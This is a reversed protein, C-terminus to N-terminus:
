NEVPLFMGGLHAYVGIHVNRDGPTLVLRRKPFNSSSLCLASKNCQLPIEADNGSSPNSLFPM